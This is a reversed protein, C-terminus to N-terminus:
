SNGGKLSSFFTRAARLYYEEPNMMSKEKPGDGATKIIDMIGLNFAAEYGTGTTGVIAILPVNSAKCHVAVGAVTKGHFSQWDLRGEGTICLDAGKLHEDIGIIQLIMEIGRRLKAGLALTLSAGLGGAAGAGPIYDPDTGFTEKLVGAYNNMGTELGSIIENRYDPDMDPPCKQRAYTFTAGDPGTLPNDVDCLVTIEADKVLPCLGSTDISAILALDSGTGGSAGVENGDRDLFRCGLARLAGIGADNTASGGIAIMISKCGQELADRILEGTGYTTTRAPNLRDGPILTIGSAASMEIIAGTKESDPMPFLGYYAAIEDMFPNHVTVTRKTGGLAGIVADVTGAGGDGVSLGVTECDPFTEHAAITLLESIRASTLTGKFSDSAFVFKM